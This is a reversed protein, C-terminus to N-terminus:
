EEQGAHPVLSDEETMEVDPLRMGIIHESDAFKFDGAKELDDMTAELARLDPCLWFTFYQRESSWRCGYRGFMQIGRARGNVFAQQINASTENEEDPGARYESDKNLWLAVFGLPPPDAM